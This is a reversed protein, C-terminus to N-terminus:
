VRVAQEHQKILQLLYLLKNKQKNDLDVFQCGIKIFNETKTNEEWIKIVNLIINENFNVEAPPAIKISFSDSSQKASRRVWACIGGNSINITFGLPRNFDDGNNSIIGFWSLREFKRMGKM